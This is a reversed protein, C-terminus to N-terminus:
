HGKKINGCRVIFLAVTLPKLVYKLLFKTKYLKKEAVPATEIKHADFYEMFCVDGYETLYLYLAIAQLITGFNGSKFWTAIGIKRKCVSKDNHQNRAFIRISNSM